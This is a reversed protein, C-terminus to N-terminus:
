CNPPCLVILPVEIAAGCMAPRAASIRCALCLLMAGPSTRVSNIFVADGLPRLTAGPAPRSGVHRWPAPSAWITSATVVGAHTDGEFIERPSPLPPDACSVIVFELETGIVYSRDPTVVIPVPGDLA